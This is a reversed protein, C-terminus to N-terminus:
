RIFEKEIFRCLSEIDDIGFVPVDPRFGSDTVFGALTGDHIALPETHGSQTRFIEIKPFHSRKFGELLVLDMDGLHRDIDEVISESRDRVLAINEPGVVMTAAGAKRLRWSDKGERDMEFGKHAHKACGVTFGKDRLNRILKELLTTKGSGSKGVISLINAKM